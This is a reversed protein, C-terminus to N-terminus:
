ARHGAGSIEPGGALAEEPSRGPPRYSPLELRFTAGAGSSSEARIWGGHAEVIARAIALGLGTGERDSGHVARVRHFREFIRELEDEPIGPGSDAVVIRLRDGLAHATLEVRDGPRTHAVANRILNRLVQTLRDPDAHLTGAVTTMQFDREGFLPLDRRIDEFFPELDIEEAVVLHGGEASALTLLDSVLRDLEDLRRLLTGTAAHRRSEDRERDLLEVQARLVALPTRLEHSADSVFERQRAFARQLRELMMDFGRALVAIEGGRALPGARVALDGTAAQGAVASLRRLPAAIMTALGLGALVALVLVAAGVLAFTRTLSAQADLVPRLPDAFRITGARRGDLQIPLTLVRMQGAEAVRRDALGPPAGLLGGRRGEESLDRALVEHDNTVTPGGRVQAVIILAEAHYGQGAIFRRAAAALQTGTSLNRRVAFQGWEAAQTALQGDIQARLRSGTYARVAVFTAGLGFATVSVIALALQARLGRPLLHGKM